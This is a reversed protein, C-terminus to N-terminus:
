LEGTERVFAPHKGDRRRIGDAFGRAIAVRQARGSALQFRRASKAIHGATWRWTGHRRALAFFNRAAYYSTWPEQRRNPREDKWTSRAPRSVTDSVARASETDVVVRFGARRVRLFFDLDEYGWFMSGDPFTNTELVRRSVLTAGWQGMHIEEFREHTGVRHPYTIGTRPDMDRGYAVIAGVACPSISDAAEAEKILRETRPTPLRYLAVDDECVYIWQADRTALVHRLGRAFGGAPGENEPLRVVEISAELEPDDLGGEGNVVLVIDDLAIGEDEVLWRVSRTALRPRLYTLVLAVPDESM